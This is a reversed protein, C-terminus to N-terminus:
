KLHKREENHQGEMRALREDIRNVKTNLGNFVAKELNTVKQTLRGGDFIIKVLLILSAGSVGFTFFNIDHPNM